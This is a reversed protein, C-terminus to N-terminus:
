INAKSQTKKKKILFIKLINSLNSVNSCPSWVDLSVKEKLFELNKPKPLFIPCANPTNKARQTEQGYSFTDPHEEQLFGKTKMLGLVYLDWIFGLYSIPLSSNPFYGECLWRRHMQVHIQSITNGLIQFYYKWHLTMHTLVLTSIHM